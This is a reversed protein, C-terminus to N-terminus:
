FVCCPAALVLTGLSSLKLDMIDNLLFSCTSPHPLLTSLIQFFHLLCYWLTCQPILLFPSPPLHASHYYLLTEMFHLFGRGIICIIVFNNSTLDYRIRQYMNVNRLEQKIPRQYVNSSSYSYVWNLCSSPTYLLIFRLSVLLAYCAMVTSITQM